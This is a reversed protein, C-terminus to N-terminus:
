GETVQALVGACRACLTPHDASQGVTSKIGWCRECKIGQAPSAVIKLGAVEESAYADAPAESAPFLEVESVIFISSLEDAYGKLLEFLEGDAYIAARADLSHGIIREARIRELVKSAESRVSLITAWRADLAEDTWDDHLAPFLALHVSEEKDPVAPLFQWIEEATFTIVPAMLRTMGSLIEYMATQASRREIGDAKSTYLRDKLVDLYFASMEVTCFNQLSQYILHFEHDAYAKRVKKNLEQFRNLAWRDLELMESYAVEDKSPDFDSLNGLMYRATNRIRRYAESLRKLIEDSIRVDETYDAASVWMRLIEAGYTDIVKQPAIVNGMSKSMKKGSGDVTFGHTLVSRFPPVGVTGVSALLSSQFWGRHQDSGELYLDAPWALGPRRKLVAAQSVGSDFWVDLIDTEKEFGMSGCNPCITSPPMLEKNKLTFWIDAGEKEMKDAVFDVLSQDMMLENCSKCKFIAIPVGWARQRSICWDPRNEVMGRIRDKGWKPIWNIGDEIFGLAKKRLGNKEMSIFWQETARFLIPSKCRWCHPYSHTLKETALLAGVSKLKEIIPENAKFVHMGAFDAIEPVFKGHDDV